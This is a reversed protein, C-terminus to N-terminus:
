AQREIPKLSNLNDKIREAAKEAGDLVGRRAKMEVEEALSSIAEFGLSASAGKISHSSRVALAPDAKQIARVLEDLDSLTTEVFLTLIEVWEEKDLGLKERLDMGVMGAGGRRLKFAIDM